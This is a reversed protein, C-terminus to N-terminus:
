KLKTYLLDLIEGDTMFESKPAYKDKVHALATYPIKGNIVQEKIEALSYMGETTCYYDQTQENFRRVVKQISNTQKSPILEVELQM